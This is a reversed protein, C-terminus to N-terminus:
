QNLFMERFSVLAQMYVEPLNNIKTALFDQGKNPDEGSQITFQELDEPSLLGAITQMMHVSLRDELDDIMSEQLEAVPAIGAEELMQALFIRIEEPGPVDNYM